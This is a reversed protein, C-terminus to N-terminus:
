VCAAVAHRVNLGIQDLYKPFMGVVVADRPKINAYAYRFAEAVDEQTACCRGAGLIKYALCMKDTQRIVKCMAAPAEPSFEEHPLEGPKPAAVASQRPAKALRYFCAMYFDVDWGKEEAYEIVEPLHTGLGVQVGTDRICKLYDQVENIRGEFWLADTQTGHHYIGITGAAALVRINQFVDHMESATQAIWHLRGGERRFIELWYLIRHYDGRAQLTNIGAAQVAHLYAVVQEATFYARMDDNWARSFHSNGVLPNGGSILRTVEFGSNAFPVKLLEAM